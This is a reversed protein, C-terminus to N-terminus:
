HKWDRDGPVGNIPRHKSRHLCLPREEWDRHRCVEPMERRMPVFVGRRERCAELRQAVLEGDRPRVPAFGPLECMEGQAELHKELACSLGTTERQRLGRRDEGFMAVREAVGRGGRGKW